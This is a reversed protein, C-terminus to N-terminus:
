DAAALDVADRVLVGLAHWFAEDAMEEARRSEILRMFEPNMIEHAANMVDLESGSFHDTLGEIAAIMRRAHEAHDTAREAEDVLDILKAFARRRSRPSTNRERSAVADAIRGYVGPAGLNSMAALTHGMVLKIQMLDVDDEAQM